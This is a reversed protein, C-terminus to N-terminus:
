KVQSEPVMTAIHELIMKVSPARDHLYSRCKRIEEFIFTEDTGMKQPDAKKRLLTELCNLFSIAQVKDKEDIIKKVIDIRAQAGSTLFKRVVDINNQKLGTSRYSVVVLRSTLTPLLVKASPTIIFFHTRETPEEFIKLLSNQAERTIFNTAIVFIKRGEGASKRSQMEKLMRGDNIGFTDFEGYWFDPNGRTKVNLGNELFSRLERLIVDKDGQLCYAHHLLAGSSNGIQAGLDNDIGMILELPTLEGQIRDGSNKLLLVKRIHIWISM